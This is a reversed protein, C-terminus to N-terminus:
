EALRLMRIDDDTYTAAIAEDNGGQEVNARWLSVAKGFPVYPGDKAVANLQRARFGHRLAIAHLWVDDARPCLERFGDGAEALAELLEPPYLVGGVGTAFNRPTVRTDSALRWTEYPALRDGDFEIRRARHCPVQRAARAEAAAGVLNELCDPQYLVDDDVTVLPLRLDSESRLYPFYKTHPGFNGTVVGIELGRRRLRELSEPLSGADAEDLWLILRAPKARGRAISEIAYFANGVRSGHSTLSVVVPADGVVASRCRENRRLLRRLRAHLVGERWRAKVQRARTGPLGKVSTVAM